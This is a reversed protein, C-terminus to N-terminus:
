RYMRLWPREEYTPERGVKVHTSEVSLSCLLDAGLEGVQQLDLVGHQQGAHVYGCSRLESGGDGVGSTQTHETTNPVSGVHEALLNGLQLAEEVVLVCREANVQKEGLDAATCALGLIHPHLPVPFTALARAAVVVGLALQVLEDVDDDVASGLEEDAGDADRGLSNYLLEM